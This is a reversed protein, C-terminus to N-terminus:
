LVEGIDVPEGLLEELERPERLHAEWADYSDMLVSRESLKNTVAVRLARQSGVVWAAKSARTLGTYTLERSLMIYHSMHCFMLVYPWQSGQARHTTIAYALKFSRADKSSMTIDGLITRLTLWDSGYDLVQGQEGNMVGIDYNNRTQILLDDRHCYMGGGIKFGSAEDGPNAAEKVLKNLSDVGLPGGNMPTLVQPNEGFQESMLQYYDLFSGLADEADDHELLILREDSAPFDPIRGDHIRHAAAIIPNGQAQRFIETLRTANHDIRAFPNGPGVPPLQAEDGSLLIRANKGVAKLLSNMLFIDIMSSEDVIILDHPLPFKDDYLFSGERPQWSLLRHITLADEGSVESMRRAAKGTPACMAFEIDLAKASHVLASLTKTKGSGPLGSLKTILSNDLTRFVDRQKPSLEEDLVKLGLPKPKAAYRETLMRIVNSEAKLVGPLGLQSNFSYSARGEQLARALGVECDAWTLPTIEGMKIKLAEEEVITHGDSLHQELAYVVLAGLRRPDNPEIGQKFAAEDATLFGIGGVRTLSYIDNEVTTAANAGFEELCLTAQYYTLGLKLLSQVQLYEDQSSAWDEVIKEATIRGIGRIKTLKNVDKLIELTESGHKSVLELAKRDGLGRVRQALYYALGSTDSTDQQVSVSHPHYQEGWKPDISKTFLGTLTDGPRVMPLEGNVKIKGGSDLLLELASWNAKQFFVRAVSGTLKHHQEPQIFLTGQKDDPM